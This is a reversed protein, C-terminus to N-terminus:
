DRCMRCSEWTKDGNRDTVLIRGTGRCKSCADYDEAPEWFHPTRSWYSSERDDRMCQWWQGGRLRRYISFRALRHDVIFM